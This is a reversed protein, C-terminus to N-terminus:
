TIGSKEMRNDQEKGNQLGGRKWETIRSKEM